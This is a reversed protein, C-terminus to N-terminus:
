SLIRFKNTQFVQVRFSPSLFLFFIHAASPSLLTCLRTDIQLLHENANFSLSLKDAASRQTCALTPHMKWKVTEWTIFNQSVQMKMNRRIIYPNCKFCLPAGARKGMQVKRADKVNISTPVFKNMQSFQNDNEHIPSRLLIACRERTAACLWAMANETKSRWRFSVSIVQFITKGSNHCLSVCM